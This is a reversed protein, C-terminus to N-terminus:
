RRQKVCFEKLSKIRAAEATKGEASLIAAYEDYGDLMFKRAGELYPGQVPRFAREFCETADKKDGSKIGCRGLMLLARETANRKTSTDALGACRQFEKEAAQIEDHLFLETGKAFAIECDQPNGNTLEFHGGAGLDTSDRPRTLLRQLQEMFKYDQKENAFAAARAFINALTEAKKGSLALEMAVVYANQANKLDGHEFYEACDAAAVSGTDAERNDIEQWISFAEQYKKEKQGASPQCYAIGALAEMKRSHHEIKDESLCLQLSKEYAALANKLEGKKQYAKGLDYATTSNQWFYADYPPAEPVLPIPKVKFLEKLEAIAQEYKGQRVLINAAERAPICYNAHNTIQLDAAQLYYQRASDWNGQEEYIAALARMANWQRNHEDNYERDWVAPHDKTADRLAKSIEGQRLALNVSKPHNIAEEIVTKRRASADVVKQWYKVAMALEIQGQQRNGNRSATKAALAHKVALANLTAPSANAPVIEKDEASSKKDTQQFVLHQYVFFGLLVLLPVIFLPLVRMRSANKERECEFEELNQSCKEFESALEEISQFRNDPSKELCKLICANLQEFCAGQPLKSKDVAENSHKYMIDLATDGSFLPASCAAEYMVAGISYIDSRKDVREARAQEPSMYAPTGLLVGTRTLKLGERTELNDMSAIGFDLLKAQLNGEDDEIVFINGPKLDRHIIGKSHAYVLADLVQSFLTRFDRSSLKGEQLKKDLSKGELWEMAFYPNQSNKFGVAFVKVIHAHDLSCVLRAENLFRKLSSEDLERHQNLLKLACSRQVNKQTAKYIIGMAGLAVESEIEFSDFLLDEGHTLPEAPSCKIKKDEQLESM